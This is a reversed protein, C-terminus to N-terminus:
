NDVWYNLVLGVWKLLKREKTKTNNAAKMSNAKVSKLYM